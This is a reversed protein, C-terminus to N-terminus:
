AVVRALVEGPFDPLHGLERRAILVLRRAAEPADHSLAEDLERGLEGAAACSLGAEPGRQSGSMIKQTNATLVATTIPIPRRM